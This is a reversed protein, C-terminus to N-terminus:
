VCLGEVKPFGYPLSCGRAPAAPCRGLLRFGNEEWIAVDETAIAGVSHINALDYLHVLGREGKQCDRGTAPDILRVRLTPPVQHIGDAASAYCPSSLETMGYENIIRDLPVDLRESLLKWLHQPTMVDGRKKFGGTDFVVSGEPLSCGMDRSIMWELIDAWASSTGLLFTPTEGDLMAFFRSPDVVYDGGVVWHISSARDKSLHNVMYSLSSHRKASCPPILSVWKLPMHPPMFKDFGIALAKEYARADKMYHRGLQDRTTGSTEFIMTAQNPSFCTVQTNRFAFVPLAPFDCWSRLQQPICDLCKLFGNYVQNRSIQYQLLDFMGLVWAEETLDSRILAEFTHIDAQM